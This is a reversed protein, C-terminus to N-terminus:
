RPIHTTSRLSALRAAITEAAVGFGLGDLDPGDRSSFQKVTAVGVVAGCDDVIPGGSNGPNIDADTQLVAGSGGLVGPFQSFPAHKSVM